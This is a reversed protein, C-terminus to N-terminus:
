QTTKGSKNPVANLLTIAQLQGDTSDFVYKTFDRARILLVSGESVLCVKLIVRIEGGGCVCVCESDSPFDLGFHM